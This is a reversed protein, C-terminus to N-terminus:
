KCFTDATKRSIVAEECQFGRAFCALRAYIKAWYVRRKECDYDIRDSDLLSRRTPRVGLGM